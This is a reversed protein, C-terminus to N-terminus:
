SNRCLKSYKTLFQVFKLFFNSIKSFNALMLLFITSSFKNKKKKQFWMHLPKDMGVKLNMANETWFNVFHPPFPTLHRTVKVDGQGFWKVDMFFGLWFLTLHQLFHMILWSDTMSYLRQGIMNALSMRQCIWNTLM